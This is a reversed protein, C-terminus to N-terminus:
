FMEEKAFGAKIVSQTIEQAAEDTDVLCLIYHKM